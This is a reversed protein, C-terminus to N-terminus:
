FRRWPFLDIDGTRNKVILVVIMRMMDFPHHLHGLCLNFLLAIVRAIHPVAYRLHEIILDAHGLSKSREM